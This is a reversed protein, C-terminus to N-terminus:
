TQLDVCSGSCDSLSGCGGTRCTGTLCVERPGCATLCDGCHEHDSDVWACTDGCRVQGAQPCTGPDQECRGTSGCVMGVPCPPDAPEGCFLPETRACGCLAAAAVLALAVTARARLLDSLPPQMASVWRGPGSQVLRSARFAM